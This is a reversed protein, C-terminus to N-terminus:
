YREGSAILALVDHLPLPPDSVMGTDCSGVTWDWGDHILLWSARDRGAEFVGLITRAGPINWSRASLDEVASVDSCHRLWKALERREAPTLGAFAEAKARWGTRAASIM